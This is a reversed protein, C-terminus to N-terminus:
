GGMYPFHGPCLGAMKMQEAESPCRCNGTLLLATADPDKIACEMMGYADRVDHLMPPLSRLRM